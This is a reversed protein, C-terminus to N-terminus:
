RALVGGEHSRELTKHTEVLLSVEDAALRQAPLRGRARLLAEHRQEDIRSVGVRRRYRNYITAGLHDPEDGGAAIAVSQVAADRKGVHAGIEARWGPLELHLNQALAAPRDDRALREVIRAVQAQPGSETALAGQGAGARAGRRPRAPRGGRHRGFGRRRDGPHGREVGPERLQLRSREVS